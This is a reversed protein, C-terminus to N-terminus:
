SLVFSLYLSNVCVEDPSWSGREIAPDLVHNYHQRVQVATRGPVCAAIEKWRKRKGSLLSVAGRLMDDEAATWPAAGRTAM